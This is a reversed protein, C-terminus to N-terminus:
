MLRRTANIVAHLILATFSFLLGLVLILMTVLAPGMPFRSTRYFTDIASAGLGLGVLILVLGPVGFFLLAHETEVYRIMSGIVSVGHQLPGQSSAKHEYDVEVPVEAIRLGHKDADWLMEVSAGMANERPDITEIAARSFARFGSQADRLHGNRRTRLNTLSTLLRIGFRRYSPVKSSTRLDLFRSGICIDAVGRAVPDVVAPISEPRHQGDGDLIVLVDTGNNRAYELCTRIAAGYGQNTEHRLVKAGAREAILATKDTSGDDAVLM